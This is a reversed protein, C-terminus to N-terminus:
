YVYTFRMGYSQSKVREFFIEPAFSFYKERSEGSQIQDAMNYAHIGEFIRLAAAIGILAYGRSSNVRGESLSGTAPDARMGPSLDKLAFYVLLNNAHFFTYGLLRNGRYFYGGGGGFFSLLAATYPSGILPQRGSYNSANRLYSSAYADTFLPLGGALLMYWGFRNAALTDSSYAGNAPPENLLGKVELYIYPAGNLGWLALGGWDDNRYYGLIPAALPMAASAPVALLGAYFTTIGAPEEFVIERKRGTYFKRLLDSKDKHPILIGWNEAAGRGGSIIKGKEIVATGAQSYVAPHNGDIMKYAPYEGSIDESFQRGNDAAPRAPEFRGYRSLLGSLFRGAHEEAIYSLEKAGSSEDLLIKLTYSYLLRGSFPPGIAYGNLEIFLYGGAERIDGSVLLAIKARSAFRLLCIEDLCGFKSLEGKLRGAPISDFVGATSGINILHEELASAFRLARPTDSKIFAVGMTDRASLPFSVALLALVAAATSYRM